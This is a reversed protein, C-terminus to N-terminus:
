RPANPDPEQLTRFNSFSLVCIVGAIVILGSIVLAGGVGMPAAVTGGLLGFVAPMLQFMASFAAMTQGKHADDSFNQLLVSLATSGVGLCFGNIGLLVAVPFTATMMAILGGAAGLTVGVIGIGLGFRRTRPVWFQAAIAGTLLGGGLWSMTAGRQIETAGLSNVLHEPLLVQLPGLASFMLMVLLIGQFLVPNQQLYSRFSGGVDVAITVASPCRRVFWLCGMGALHLGIIILGLGIWGYSSKILDTCVPALGVGALTLLATVGTAKSLTDKEVVDALFALRAPVVFALSSGMTVSFTVMLIARLTTSLEVSFLFLLGFFAILSLVQGFVVIKKRDRRDLMKGAFTTLIGIPLFISFFVLGTLTSSELYLGSMLIMSYHFMNAPLLTLLTNALYAVLGFNTSSSTM